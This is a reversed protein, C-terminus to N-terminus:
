RAELGTVTADPDDLGPLSTVKTRAQELLTVVREIDVHSERSLEELVETITVQLLEKGQRASQAEVEAARRQGELVQLRQQSFIDFLESLQEASLYRAAALPSLNSGTASTRAHLDIRRQLEVDFNQRVQRLERTTALVRRLFHGLAKRHLAKMHRRDLLWEVDEPTLPVGSLVEDDDYNYKASV